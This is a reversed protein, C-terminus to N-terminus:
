CGFHINIILLNIEFTVFKKGNEIAEGEEEDGLMFLTAVRM